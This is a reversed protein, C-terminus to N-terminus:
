DNPQTDQDSDSPKTPHQTVDLHLAPGPDGRTIAGGRALYAAVLDQQELRLDAKTWLSARPRGHRRDIAAHPRSPPKPISTRSM